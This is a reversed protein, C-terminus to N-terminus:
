SEDLCGESFFEDLADAVEGPADEPTFHGASDLEVYASEPLTEHLWRGDEVDLWRDDAGWLVLTPVSVSPYDDEMEDTYREDFQAVQRYYAAQGAEGLWPALYPELDAEDVDRSIATGLHGILLQRHVHEPLARFVDVHERVHRSVPTIWPARVVGNLIAMARYDIGHVLHGRLVTAAGYDHGAVAVEDLDWHEVLEAFVAGHAGLSVDQGEYTESQGFGVLDFLYLEWDDRLEAVVNRWLHSSSPTGHVLVLPDGDGVVDYAVRGHSSEYSQELELELELKPERELRTMADEYPRGVTSEV